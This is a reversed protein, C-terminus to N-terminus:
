ENMPSPTPERSPPPSISMVSAPPSLAEVAIMNLENDRDDSKDNIVVKIKKQTIDKQQKTTKENQKRLEQQAEVDDNNSSELNFTDNMNDPGQFILYMDCCVYKLNQIM